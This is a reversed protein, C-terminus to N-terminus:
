FIGEFDSAISAAEEDNNDCYTLFDEQYIGKQYAFPELPGCPDNSDDTVHGVLWLDGLPGLHGVEGNDILVYMGNQAVVNGNPIIRFEM